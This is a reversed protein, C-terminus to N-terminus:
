GLGLDEIWRSEPSIEDRPIHFNEYIMQRVTDLIVSGDSRPSRKQIYECLLGVTKLSEYDEIPIEFGYTEEVRMIFETMDLSM